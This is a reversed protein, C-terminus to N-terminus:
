IKDYFVQCKHIFVNDKDFNFLVENSQKLLLKVPILPACQNM